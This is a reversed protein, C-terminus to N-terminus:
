QINHCHYSRSQQYFILSKSPKGKKTCNLLLCKENTLTNRSPRLSAFAYHLSPKASACRLGDPFTENLVDKRQRYIAPPLRGLADHPRLNNYDEIFELTVDRVESLSDFLYADLM